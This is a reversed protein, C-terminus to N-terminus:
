SRGEEDLLVARLALADVDAADIRGDGNLDCAAPPAGADLVRALAFADLINIRGNGDLDGAIPTGSPSTVPRLWLWTALALTAAAAVSWGTSRLHRRRRRGGGLQARAADAIALDIEPPVDIGTRALRALDRALRDM